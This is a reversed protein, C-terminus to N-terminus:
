LRRALGLIRPAVVFEIPAPRFDFRRCREVTFGASEISALTDRATHCGGAFFPWM